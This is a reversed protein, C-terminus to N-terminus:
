RHGESEGEDTALDEGIGESPVLRDAYAASDNIM